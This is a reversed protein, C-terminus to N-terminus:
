AAGSVLTLIAPGFRWWGLGALAILALAYFGMFLMPLRREFRGIRRPKLAVGDSTKPPNKWVAHERKFPQSPLESELEHLVVFKLWLIDSHSRIVNLWNHSITLGAVAFIAAVVVLTPNWTFTAADKPAGTVLFNDSFLFGMAGVVALNLTLYFRNAEARRALLSEATDSFLKYQVWRAELRAAEMATEDSTM